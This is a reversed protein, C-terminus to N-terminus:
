SSPIEKSVKLVAAYIDRLNDAYLPGASCAEVHALIQEERRADFLGMHADSKLARIALQHEARENLLAVIKEDLADIMARHEEIRARNENHDPM